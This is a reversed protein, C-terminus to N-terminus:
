KKGKPVGKGKRGNVQYAKEGHRKVFTEVQKKKSEDSPKFTAIQRMFQRYREYAQEPTDGPKGYTEIRRQRLELKQAQTMPKRPM